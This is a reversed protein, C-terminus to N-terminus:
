NLKKVFNVISEENFAYSLTRNTLNTRFRLTDILGKIPPKGNFILLVDTQTYIGMHVAGSHQTIILSANCCTEIVVRNDTSLCVEINGESSLEASMSPHGTIYVKEFFPSVKRAIDLYDWPGGNNPTVANGKKRPFIVCSKEQRTQYVPRINYTHQRGKKLQWNRFVYWYMDNDAINLFAKGSSRAKVFFQDIEKQVDPPPVTANSSSPVEAFFDRLEHYTHVIPQGHGDVLFAKHLAMGCYHIKVGQQHLHSLFPLNHLLFHGFEGKFPGYYCEKERLAQKYFRNIDRYAKWVIKAYHMKGFVNLTRQGYMVTTADNPFIYNHEETTM